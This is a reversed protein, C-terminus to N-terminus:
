TVRIPSKYGTARLERLARLSFHGFALASLVPTVLVMLPFFNLASLMMGLLFYQTRHTKIIVEREAPTAHELLSDFRMIRATLWSWCLWPVLLGVIPVLWLPVSLLYVVAFVALAVFSNLLSGSVSFSGELHIDKYGGSGLFRVVVPMAVAATVALGLVFALPTFILLAMSIMLIEKIGGLGLGSAWVYAKGITTNPELMHLSVGASLPTWAFGAVLTLVIVCVFAPLALLGLMKPHLQSLLAKLFASLSPPM